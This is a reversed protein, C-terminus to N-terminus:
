GDAEPNLQHDLANRYLRWGPVAGALGGVVLAFLVLWPTEAALKFVQLSVGTASHVWRSAALSFLVSLPLSLVVGILTTFVGEAILLKALGLRPLGLTRLLAYDRRRLESGVTLSALIAGGSIGIMALSFLSLLKHAWGLKNFIESVERAVPYALTAGKEERNIKQSLALGRQPSDFELLVASVELHEEPIAEGPEAHYEEHGGRLVHGEMRLVGELPIWLARDIPTSTPNLISVVVYEESHDHGGEVLGHTPQFHDGLKLGLKRSVESGIVSERRKPDFLRGQALSPKLGKPPPDLLLGPVTGVVRFGRFSDGVVIPYARRVGPEERIERYLTWPINGPSTELHFLSNLVLQLSSGRAGLVADYGGSGNLFARKAQSRLSLTSLSLGLALATLLVTTTVTFRSSRMSGWVLHPLSGPRLM